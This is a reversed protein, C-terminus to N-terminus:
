DITDFRLWVSSPWPLVDGEDLPLEGAKQRQAVESDWYERFAIILGDKIEGAVGTGVAFRKGTARDTAAFQYATYHRAGESVFFDALYIKIDTKETQYTKFMGVLDAKGVVGGPYKFVLDPHLCSAFADADGNQWSQLFKTYLAQATADAARASTGLGLALLCLLFPLKSFLTRLRM